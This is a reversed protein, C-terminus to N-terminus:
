MFVTASYSLINMDVRVYYTHFKLIWYLNWISELKVNLNKKFQSHTSLLWYWCKVLACTLRSLLYYKNQSVFSLLYFRVLVKVPSLLGNFWIFTVAIDLALMRPSAYCWLNCPKHFFSFLLDTDDSLIITWLSQLFDLVSNKVTCM